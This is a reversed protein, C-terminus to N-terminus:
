LRSVRFLQCLSLFPDRKPSASIFFLTEFGGSRQHIWSEKEGRERTAFLPLSISPIITECQNTIEGSPAGSFLSIFVFLRGRAKSSTSIFPELNHQNKKEERGRSIHSNLGPCLNALKKICELDVQTFNARLLALCFIYSSPVIDRSLTWKKQLKKRERRPLRCPESKCGALGCSTLYNFTQVECKAVNFSHYWSCSQLKGTQCRLFLNLSGPECFQRPLSFPDLHWSAM